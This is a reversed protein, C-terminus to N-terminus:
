ATLKLMFFRRVVAVKAEPGRARFGELIGAIRLGSPLGLGWCRASAGAFQPRLLNGYCPM